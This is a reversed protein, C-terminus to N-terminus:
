RVHSDHSKINTENIDDSTTALWKLIYYTAIAYM